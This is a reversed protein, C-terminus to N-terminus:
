VFTSLCNRLEVPQVALEDCLIATKFSRRTNACLFELSQVIRPQTAGEDGLIAMKDCSLLPWVMPDLSDQEKPEYGVGRIISCTLLGSVEM